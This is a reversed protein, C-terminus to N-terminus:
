AEKVSLEQTPQVTHFANKESAKRLRMAVFIGIFSMTVSLYGIYSYHLFHGATDKDIIFGAVLAAFAMALQQLSSLISMYSGRQQPPVLSTTIAQAPIIRAGTFIFFLTTFILAVYLPVAPLNTVVLVMMSSLLIGVTLVQFKGLKDALKGVVPSTFLTLFGGCFYILPLEMEQFGVNAVMYPSLYPIMVFQGFILVLMLLIGLQQYSSQLIPLIVRMPNFSQSAQIHGNMNPLYVYVWPIIVAGMIGVFIFPAHWTMMNAFFLGFPVGLVSAASFATMVIGMAQGRREFPIIDGVISLVQAGILGGFLGAVIRATMLLEYTPAIGCGITGVVFGIYGLLLVSKRNFRDVFFAMLFGSVGASFTYSSVLYGFAQPSIKFFRMLQPGLPMMIMFDIIHTFNIAALLLLIIKEQRNTM